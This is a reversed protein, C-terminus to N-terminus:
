PKTWCASHRLRKSGLTEGLVKAMTASFHSVEVGRVGWTCGGECACGMGECGECGM